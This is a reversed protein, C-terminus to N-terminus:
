SQSPAHQPAEQVFEWSGRGCLNQCKPFTDGQKVEIPMKCVTCWYIGSQEVTTGTKPM